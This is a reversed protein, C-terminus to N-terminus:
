REEKLVLVAPVIVPIVQGFHKHGYHIGADGFTVGWGIKAANADTPNKTDFAASLLMTTDQNWKAALASINLLGNTDYKAKLVTDEGFRYQAGLTLTPKDRKDLDAVYEAGMWLDNSVRHFYGLGAQNKVDDKPHADIRHFAHAQFDAQSYSLVLKNEKLGSVEGTRGLFYEGFAGLSLWPRGVVLSAKATAGERKGFDTSISASFQPHEYDVAMTGFAEQNKVQASVLSSLGPAVDSYAMVKVDRATTLEGLFVTRSPAHFYAPSLTGLTEGTKTDKQFIADLVVGQSTIGKWQLKQNYKEPHFDKSLLDNLPKTLVEFLGCRPPSVAM